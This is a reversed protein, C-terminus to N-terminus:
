SSDMELKTSARPSNGSSTSLLLKSELLATNGQVVIGHPPGGDEDPEIILGDIGYDGGGAM